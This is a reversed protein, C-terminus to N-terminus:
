SAQETPTQKSQALLVGGVILAFAIVLSTGLRENLL